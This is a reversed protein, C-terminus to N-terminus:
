YLFKFATLDEIENINHPEYESMNRKPTIDSRGRECKLLFEEETKCFYHNLQAISYDGDSNFPGYNLKKNTDVWNLDPSHVGMYFKRHLKVICKVHPNVSSQRKTFRKIVSYDDLIKNHGNNGFLAWNIGVAEYDNYDNLFEVISNHKKLVLFEDVDFFAVWDYNNLNHEIFHNYSPTQKLEGDFDIKIVNETEGSWRWNNQYIIIKDFGLKLHYDIWEQIYHDENKAICVLATKM